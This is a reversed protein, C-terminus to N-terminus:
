LAPCAPRTPCPRRTASPSSRPPSVPPRPTTPRPAHAPKSPPSTPPRFGPAERGAGLVTAAAAFTSSGALDFVTAIGLGSLGSLAHVAAGDVGLLVEPSSSLVKEVGLNAADSRLYDQYSM